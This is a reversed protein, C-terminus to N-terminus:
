LFLFRICAADDVSHGFKVLSQKTALPFQETGRLFHREDEGISWNYGPFSQRRVVKAITNPKVPWIDLHEQGNRRQRAQLDQRAHLSSTWCRFWKYALNIDSLGLE